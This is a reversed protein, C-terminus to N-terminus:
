VAALGTETANLAVPRRSAVALLPSSESENNETAWVPESVGSLPDGIGVPVPRTGCATTNPGVPHSAADLRDFPAIATKAGAAGLAM